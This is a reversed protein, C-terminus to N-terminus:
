GWYLNIAPKEGLPYEDAIPGFACAVYHPEMSLSLEHVFGSFHM